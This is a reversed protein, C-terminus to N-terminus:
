FCTGFFFDGIFGVGYVLAVLSNLAWAWWGRHFDFILEYAAYGLVLLALPPSLYRYALADIEDTESIGGKSRSADAQRVRASKVLKFAGVLLTLSSGVVVLWSAGETCLYVLVVAEMVFNVAVSRTSLGEMTDVSRWFSVDSQFALLDFLLHLASVAVTSYLLLPSTHVFMSRLDESESEQMAFSQRLNLMWLFRSVSMPEVSLELPASSLSGNIPLLKGQTLELENVFLVPRFRSRQSDYLRDTHWHQALLHPVEEDSYEEQDVVLNLSLLPKWWAVTQARQEPTLAELELQWAPRAGTLLNRLTKFAPRPAHTVLRTRTSSTTHRDFSADAPDPSAGGKTVFMHAYLTANSRAHEGLAVSTSLQQRVARKSYRVGAAKWVLEEPAFAQLRASPSVYVWVDLLTDSKFACRILSDTRAASLLLGLALVLSCSLARRRTGAM